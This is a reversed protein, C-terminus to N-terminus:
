KSDHTWVGDWDPPTGHQAFSRSRQLLTRAAADSPRIALAAEFGHAADAWRRQDHLVHARAFTELWQTEHEFPQDAADRLIEHLAVVESRGLVRATDIRRHVVADGAQTACEATALATTGYFRNLGELRSGLNVIDGMVTYNFKTRSGINGVLTEGTAVGVRTRLPRCGLRESTARVGEAARAIRLAARCARAAHDDTLPPGWFAVVADGIFKDVIGNLASVEDAARGLYDNLLEVLAEPSLREALGTFGELDAFLVSQVRLEGGPRLRSPDALIGEVVKPDVFKGFTDKILDRQELGAAMQNFSRALAALEDAGRPEIKVGFEGRAIANAGQELQEVPRAIKKALRVCGLAAFGVGLLTIAGITAHIRRLGALADDLSSALAVAGVRGEEAEFFVGEGVFREGSATFELSQRLGTPRMQKALRAIAQAPTEQGERESHPGDHPASVDDSRAYVKGDYVLWAQVRANQGKHGSGLWGHLLADSARYGVFYAHTPEGDAELRLGVGLTRFLSGGAYVFSRVEGRGSLLEQWQWHHDREVLANALEQDGPASAMLFRGRDDLLVHFSPAARGRGLETQVVRGFVEDRLQALAFERAEDDQASIAELLARNQPEGMLLVVLQEAEKQERRIREVADTVREEIERRARSTEQKTLDARVALAVAGALGVTLGLTQGLIKSWLKM